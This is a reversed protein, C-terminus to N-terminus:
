RHTSRRSSIMKDRERTKHRRTCWRRNKTKKSRRLPDWWLKPHLATAWGRPQQQLLPRQLRRSGAPEGHLLEQAGDVGDGIALGVEWGRWGSVRVRAWGCWERALGRRGKSVCGGRVEALWSCGSWFCVTFICVHDVFQLQYPFFDLWKFVYSLSFCPFPAISLLLLIHREKKGKVQFEGEMEFVESHGVSPIRLPSINM